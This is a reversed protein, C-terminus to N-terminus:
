KKRSKKFKDLRYKIEARTVKGSDPALLLTTVGGIVLGVGLGILFKELKM